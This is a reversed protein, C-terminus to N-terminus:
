GPHELYQHRLFLPVIDPVPTWDPQFYMHVAGPPVIMLDRVIHLMELLREKVLPDPSVKSLDVLTELMDGNTNADKFGLPTGICDRVLNPIPCQEPSNIQTGDRQYLAFYGGHMPDHGVKDLWQFGEQALELAEPDSTFEYYAVYADIGYSAGHGHKTSEELRNGSQDLMRFWGGFERDWMVDRLYHFGHTAFERYSSFRPHASVRSLLRLM